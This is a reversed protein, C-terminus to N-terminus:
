LSLIPHYPNSQDPQYPGTSPDQSCPLLVEPEMFNQYTRSYNCLQCSRLFPEAGRTLSCEACYFYNNKHLYYLFLKLRLVDDTHWCHFLKRAVVYVYSSPGESVSVRRTTISSPCSIRTISGPVTCFDARFVRNPVVHWM